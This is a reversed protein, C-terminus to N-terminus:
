SGWSYGPPTPSCIQQTLDHLALRQAEYAPNKDLSSLQWPDADLDYLEEEGTAYRVYMWRGPVTPYQHTRVGCYASPHPGAGDGIEDGGELHELSFYTRSMSGTGALEPLLSEGDYAWEGIPPAIGALASFTPALDINLPSDSDEVTGARAHTLPDYRILFPIHIAEDWPSQKATWRHSGGSLGNDSMFVVLTNSLRRSTTLAIRIRDVADDVALLTQEQRKRTGNWSAGSGPKLAQVWAPKDSVDAEAINPSTYARYCGPPQHGAACNPLATKYRPAAKFPAHPGYPTFELFFPQGAPAASIFNVADAALVDTSYDTTKTGYTTATGQRDLTYHFYNPTNLFTNWVDWGPRPTLGGATSAGYENLYKGVLGTRYGSAHLDAAITHGEHPPVTVGDPRTYGHAFAPFGGYPAANSWVGNDNSFQGTLTSVRSPCCLSNPVFAQTFRVGRAALFAMTKPMNELEDWRMDDTMILVINPRDDAPALRSAPAMTPPPTVVILAVAAAIAFKKMGVGGRVV